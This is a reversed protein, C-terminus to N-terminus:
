ALQKAVSFGAWVGLVGILVQATVSILALGFKDARLLDFTEWGFASFTTFGGLLGTVLLLHAERSLPSQRAEVVGFIAGIAVCGLLNVVFTGAPFSGEFTSQVRAGIFYRLPAGVAAGAMVWLYNM